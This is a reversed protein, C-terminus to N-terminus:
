QGRAGDLRYVDVPQRAHLQSFKDAAEAGMGPLVHQYTAMTFGPNAHGLRESVVKIPTGAAVLLSAHTHRLGHFCIRPMDLRRVQRQFLQYISEPNVPQGARNTFIPDNTGTRHGDREQRRRWARLVQETEGDLDICRRSTRTKVAVEVSRGAVVQRSRAISLRHTSPHWVGWRLGALEGRRMGTFAAVHLAPHLRLHRTAALFQALQDATWCEPGTRHRLRSRPPQAGLAPNVAVLHQREAQTLASRVVVHVDYVTKPALGTKKVGGTTLLDSYLHDLHEARVSRLPMSGLAPNIYNDIMWQYRHATTPQLRHRRMPMFQDNLYRGFTLQGTAITADGAAMADLRAAIAEADARSHGAPHWRRRERGTTPNIGDYAVVYFRTKREIIYTMDMHDACSGNPVSGVLGGRAHLAM